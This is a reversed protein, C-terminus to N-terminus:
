IEEVLECRQRLVDDLPPETAARLYLLAVPHRIALQALLQATVRGGGHTADLRPAFPLLFLLRPKTPFESPTMRAGLQRRAASQAGVVSRNRPVATSGCTASEPM